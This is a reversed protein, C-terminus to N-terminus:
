ITHPFFTTIKCRFRFSLDILGQKPSHGRLSVAAHSPSLSRPTQAPFCLAGLVFVIPSGLNM